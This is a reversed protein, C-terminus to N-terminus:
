RYGVADRVGSFHARQPQSAQNGAIMTQPEIFISMNALVEKLMLARKIALPQDQNEQYVQTTILAREACVKPEIELLERRFDQMRPTLTGFHSEM